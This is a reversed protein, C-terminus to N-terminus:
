IEITAIRYNYNTAHPMSLEEVSFVGNLFTNQFIAGLM